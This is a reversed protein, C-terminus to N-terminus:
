ASDILVSARYSLNKPKRTNNPVPHATISQFGRTQRTTTFDNGTELSIIGNNQISHAGALKHRTNYIKHFGYITHYQNSAPATHIQLWDMYPSSNLKYQIAPDPKNFSHDCPLQTTKLCQRSTDNTMSISIAFPHTLWLRATILQAPNLM